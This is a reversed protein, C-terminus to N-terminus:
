PMEGPLFVPIPQWARRWPIKGVWPDFGIELIALLRKVMQPWWPLGKGGFWGLFSQLSKKKKKVTLTHESCLCSISSIM